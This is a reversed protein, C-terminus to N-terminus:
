GPPMKAAIWTEHVHLWEVGQPCAANERFLATTVRATPAADDRQQWEEYTVLLLDGQQHHLRINEIWMRWTLRSGHAARIQRRLEDREMRSGDPAIIHFGAGTVSVFRQFNADTDELKGGLWAEFFEHLEIIEREYNM